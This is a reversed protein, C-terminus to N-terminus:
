REKEQLSDIVKELLRSLEKKEEEDLCAFLMSARKERQRSIKAYYEKGAETIYVYLNRKDSQSRRREILGQEELVTLVRTLSQPRIELLEALKSQSTGDNRYIMSLIRGHGHPVDSQKGRSRKIGNFCLRIENMLKTEPTNM